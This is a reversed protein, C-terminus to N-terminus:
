EYLRKRMSLAKRNVTCRGKGGIRSCMEKGCCDCDTPLHPLPKRPPSVTVVYFTTLMMSGWYCLQYLMRWVVLVASPLRFDKTSRNYDEPQQM